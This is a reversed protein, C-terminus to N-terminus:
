YAATGKRRRVRHCSHAGATGRLIKQLYQTQAVILVCTAGGLKRLAGIAAQLKDRLVFGLLQEGRVVPFGRFAHTRALEDLEGLLADDHVVVLNAAGKMVHAATQGDDRFERAPLWPYQRMAIWTSYIGDEGFADAVWKSVMVSIMIPLVHSLAGTLEFLIM